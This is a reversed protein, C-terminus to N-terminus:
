NEVEGCVEQTAEVADGGTLYVLVIRHTVIIADTELNQYADEKLKTM